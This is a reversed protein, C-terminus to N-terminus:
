RRSGRESEFHAVHDIERGEEEEEEEEGNSLSMEASELCKLWSLTEIRSPPKGRHSASFRGISVCIGECTFGCLTSSWPLVNWGM